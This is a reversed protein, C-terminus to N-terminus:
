PWFLLPGYSLSGCRVGKMVKGRGGRAKLPIPKHAPPQGPLPFPHHPPGPAKGGAGPEQGAAGQEPM